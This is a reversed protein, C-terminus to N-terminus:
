LGLSKIIESADAICAKLERLKALPVARTEEGPDPALDPAPDPSPAPTQQSELAAWTKPGVVGDSTLFHGQQFARVAHDTATGFIGDVKLNYGYGNLLDQLRKVDEGSDGRRLVPNMTEREKREPEDYSVNKLEGWEDWHTIDSMVVGYKTGKAEICVGNGVYMGVHHRNGTADCLFVATCPRLAYGDARLGDMLKGRKTTYDSWIANSSHTIKYGFQLFAWRLLGSCDAVNHGIWQSGYEITTKRTARRQQAATWVQGYKGWIYGWGNDYAYRIKTILAYATVM